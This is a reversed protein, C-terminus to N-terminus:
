FVFYKEHVKELNKILTMETEIYSSNKKADRQTIM